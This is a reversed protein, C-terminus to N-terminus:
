KKTIIRLHVCFYQKKQSNHLNNIGKKEFIKKIPPFISIPLKIIVLEM